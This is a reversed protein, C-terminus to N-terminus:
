YGRSLGAPSPPPTATVSADRLAYVPTGPQSCSMSVDPRHCRVPWARCCPSSSSSSGPAHASSCGASSCSPDSSSVPPTFGPFLTHIHQSLHQLQQRSAFAAHCSPSSPPTLPTHVLVAQESLSHHQQQQSLPLCPDRNLGAAVAAAPAPQQQELATATMAAPECDTEDMPCANNEEEEDETNYEDTSIYEDGAIDETDEGGTISNDLRRDVTLDPTFAAFGTAMSYHREFTAEVDKHLFAAQGSANGAALSSLSRTSPLMPFAVGRQQAM